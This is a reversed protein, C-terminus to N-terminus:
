EMQGALIPSDPTANYAYDKITWQTLSIFEIRAWAYHTKGDIIFRLGLYKDSKSQWYAYCENQQDTFCMGIIFISGNEYYEGNYYDRQKFIRDGSNLPIPHAYWPAVSLIRNQFIPNSNIMLWEWGDASDWSITFDVIQDNNLDLDYSDGINKGTYDPVIDTYIIGSGPEVAPQEELPPNESVPPEESSPEEDVPPEESVPPEEDVPPEEAVPPEKDVSSDDEIIILDDNKNCSFVLLFSAIFLVTVLNRLVQFLIKFKGADLTAVWTTKM